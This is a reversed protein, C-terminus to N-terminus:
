PGSWRAVFSADTLPVNMCIESISPLNSHSVVLEGPIRSVTRATMVDIYIGAEASFLTRYSRQKALTTPVVDASRHQDSRPLACTLSLTGIAFTFVHSGCGM